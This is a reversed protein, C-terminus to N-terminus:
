MVAKKAVEHLLVESRVGCRLGLNAGRNEGVPLEIPRCWLFPGLRHQSM